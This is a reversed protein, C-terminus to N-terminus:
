SRSARPSRRTASSDSGRTASPMVVVRSQWLDMRLELEDESYPRPIIKMHPEVISALQAHVEDARDKPLGRVVLCPPERHDGHFRAIARVVARAAIDIGKSTIDEARAVLLVQRNPPPDDPDATDGWDHLGPRIEVVPPAGQPIGRMASRITDALLPGVGAVLNASVALEVELRRRTDATMVASRDGPQDKVIELREADTHVIHLRKAGTFFLNQAAYAYPGLIRGHGVIADPQYNSEAFRPRTLLLEPNGVGPIPDPAVLTVGYEAAADRDEDKAKPVAVHVDCGSTAFAIALERNITSIGGRGSSWESGVLLIRPARRSQTAGPPPVSPAKRRPRATEVTAPEGLLTAAEAFSSLPRLAAPRQVEFWRLRTAGVGVVVRDFGADTATQRVLNALAQANSERLLADEFAPENEAILVGVFALQVGRPFGRRYRVASGLM